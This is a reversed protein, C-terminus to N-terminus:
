LGRGAPVGCQYFVCGEQAYRLIEEDPLVRMGAQEPPSQYFLCSAQEPPYFKRRAQKNQRRSTSYAAQKNRLTSSAGLRSTRAAVPLIL